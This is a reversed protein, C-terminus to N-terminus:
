AGEGNLGKPGFCNSSPCHTNHAGVSRLFSAQMEYIAPGPDATIIKIRM